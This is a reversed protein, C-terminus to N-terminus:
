KILISTGVPVRPYLAIVDKVRMRICGHSARSGISYEQGTGHIGVGNIIGMWRAKLPNSASGGAVKSGGLEGAWPSNPVSWVPNVQKERIEFRGKPTPYAPQGVAVGYSKVMKFHKFLRLKFESQSVTLVTSFEKKLEKDTTKPTAERLKPTILRPASPDAFAKTVAAVVSANSIRKGAKAKRAKVRKLRITLTADRPKVYVATAVSAAFDSVAKSNVTVLPAVATGPAATFAKSATGASDFALKAKASSISFQKSGVQVTVKAPSCRRSRSISSPARRTPPLVRFTWALSRSARPSM